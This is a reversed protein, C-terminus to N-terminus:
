RLSSLWKLESVETRFSPPFFIPLTQVSKPELYGTKEILRPLRLNRDQPMFRRM